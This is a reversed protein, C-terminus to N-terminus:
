FSELTTTQRKMRCKQRSKPSPFFCIGEGRVLCFIDWVGLNWSPDTILLCVSLQKQWPCSKHGYYKLNICILLKKLLEKSFPFFVYSILPFCEHTTMNNTPISLDTYCKQFHKEFRSGKCKWEWTIWIEILLPCCKHHINIFLRAGGESNFIFSNYQFVVELAQVTQCLVLARLAETLYLIQM